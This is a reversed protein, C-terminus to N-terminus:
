RQRRDFRIVIIAAGVMTGLSVGIAVAGLLYIVEMGTM